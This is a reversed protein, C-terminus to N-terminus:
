HKAPSGPTRGDERVLAAAPIVLADAHMEYAIDFRGFMGPALHGDANDIYATARFTGNRADITPSIREITATFATEPMADVRVSAGPLNESVRKEILPLYQTLDIPGQSLRLYAGSALVVALIILFTAFGGAARALRASLSRRGGLRRIEPADAM